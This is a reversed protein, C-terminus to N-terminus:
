THIHLDYENQRRIGKGLPKGCRADRITTEVQLM